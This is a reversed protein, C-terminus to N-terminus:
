AFCRSKKEGAPDLGRTERLKKLLLAHARHLRSHITGVPCGLASAADAHTWEQFDCLVVVERYRTPLALVASRVLRAAENSAYRRFPDDQDGAEPLAAMDSGEAEETLPVYVSLRKLLRRVHNRAIGCLYAPLSARGPEYRQAERVLALFVEQVVDEAISASGSMLLAFRYIL